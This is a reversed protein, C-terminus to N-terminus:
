DGSSNLLDSFNKIFFQGLFNNEALVWDVLLASCKVVLSTQTILRHNVDRTFVVVKSQITPSSVALAMLIIFLVAKAM